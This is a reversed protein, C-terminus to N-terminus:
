KNLVENRLEDALDNYVENCQDLSTEVIYNYTFYDTKERYFMEFVQSFLGKGKYKVSDFFDILVGYKMSKHQQVFTHISMEQDMFNIWWKKFEDKCKGTLEM